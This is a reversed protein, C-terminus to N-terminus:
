DVKSKIVRLIKGQDSRVNTYSEDEGVLNGNVSHVVNLGAKRQKAELDSIDRQRKAENKIQERKAKEIAKQQELASKRNAQMQSLINTNVDSLGRNIQSHSKDIIQSPQTYTGM